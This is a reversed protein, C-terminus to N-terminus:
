ASPPLGLLAFVQHLSTPRDAGAREGHHDVVIVRDSPLDPDPELEILVPSEGDELSQRIKEAYASATAGWSLQGDVVHGPLISEVLEGITVMELDHGGLFFRYTSRGPNGSPRTM